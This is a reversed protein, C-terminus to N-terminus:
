GEGDVWLEFEVKDGDKIPAKKMTDVEVWTDNFSISWITYYEAKVEGVSKIVPGNEGSSVVMFNDETLADYLNGKTTKIHYTKHEDRFSSIVVTLTKQKTPVPAKTAKETTAAPKAAAPKTPKPAPKTAKETQKETQKETAKETEDETEAETETETELAAETEAETEEAVVSTTEKPEEPKNDATFHYILGGTVSCVAVAAVAIIIKVQLTLKVM